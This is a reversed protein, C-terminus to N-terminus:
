ETAHAHIHRQFSSNARFCLLAPIPDLESNPHAAGCAFPSVLTTVNCGARSGGDGQKRLSLIPAPTPLSFSIMSDKSSINSATPHPIYIDVILLRQADRGLIGSVGRPHCSGLASAARM